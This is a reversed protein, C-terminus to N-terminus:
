ISQLVFDITGWQCFYFGNILVVCAVFALYSLDVRQVKFSFGEHVVAAVFSAILAIDGLQLSGSPLIYFPKLLLATCLLTGSATLGDPLCNRASCTATAM